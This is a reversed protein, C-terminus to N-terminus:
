YCVAWCSGCSEQNKVPTVANHDRWDFSKQPEIDPIGAFPNGIENNLDNDGRPLLGTRRQYEAQTLDAFETVGYIASGQEFKNLQRILLMPMFVAM